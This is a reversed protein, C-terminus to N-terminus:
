VGGVLLRVAEPVYIEAQGDLERTNLRHAAALAEVAASFQAFQARRGFPLVDGM